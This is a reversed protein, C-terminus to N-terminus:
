VTSAKSDHQTQWIHVIEIQQSSTKRTMKVQYILHQTTSYTKKELLLRCVLDLVTEHARLHTYSVARSRFSQFGITAVTLASNLLPLGAMQERHIREFVQRKYM